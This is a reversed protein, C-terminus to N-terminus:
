ILVNCCRISLYRYDEFSRIDSGLPSKSDFVPNIEITFPLTKIRGGAGVTVVVALGNQQEAITM